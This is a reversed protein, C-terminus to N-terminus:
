VRVRYDLLSVITELGSLVDGGEQVRVFQSLTRHELGKRRLDRGPWRIEGQFSDPCVLSKTVFM